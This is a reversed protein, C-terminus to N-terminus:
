ANERQMAGVRGGSGLPEVDVCTSAPPVQCGSAIAGITLGPYFLLQDSIAKGPQNFKEIRKSTACSKWSDLKKPGIM